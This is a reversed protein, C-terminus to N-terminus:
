CIVKGGRKMGKNGPMSIQRAKTHGKEQITHEGHKKIGGSVVKKMSTEIMGGKAYKMM